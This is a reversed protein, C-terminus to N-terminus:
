TTTSTWRIDACNTLYFSVSSNIIAIGQELM